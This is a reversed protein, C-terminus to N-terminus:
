GETEAVAHEDAILLWDPPVDGAAWGGSSEALVAAAALAVVLMCALQPIIDSLATVLVGASGEQTLRTGLGSSIGIVLLLVSAVWPESLVRALLSSARFAEAAMFAGVVIPLLLGLYGGIWLGLGAVAALGLGPVASIRLAPRRRAAPLVVPVRLEPAAPRAASSSKAATRRRRWPVFAVVLVAALGLLGGLLAARYSADPQYTLTVEGRSGAPLLWAQEWGDLEVPQLAKTGLRAAWGANFNQNVILYSQRSASVQVVRKAATWSIDKAAVAADATSAPAPQQDIAIAQVSFSDLEPETVNNGGAAVAIPACAAFSLPRGDLIDAVTGSAETAIKRGNFEITPGHGCSLRVPASAVPALPRVGPIAVDTIQVPLEASSFTLTLTTTQMPAFAVTDSGGVGEGDLTATRVQGQSGTIRMTLVGSAAAPRLVTISSIIKKKRWTVTLSPHRDAPSSIWTTQPNGDFASWAQDQPDSTYTSSATVTAHKGSGFAYQEIVAPDTLVATGSLRAQEARQVTFSHDFGYQEETSSELGPSCVWRQPTLMCGTPQPEAKALVVATPDAGDALRVDPAQIIRSAHVGPIAIEAIGVQRGLEDAPPNHVATVTIEIWTSPGSPLRLSQYSGTVRVPDVIQGAATTIKVQTVPPGISLNDAFAVAISGPNVARDLNVRIWQGVPGGYSGSEWMTNLNGDIAAFPLRGTASQAPIATIDSDASSATIGAIGAYRAVTVDPLWDPLMFDATAEFTSLPQGATLTPSYDDRIEGFNRVRRRLSDTVITDDSPLKASASNLLVPRGQLLDLQALTLVAEPAGYVRLTAATPQVTVAPEADTVQYIQVPPYSSEFDGAATASAPNVAPATGFQAVKVIGPSEALAQHVRAPWAERLDASLLDNRVLVYKVGMQALVQTLGASGAGASIQQDITELLRSNGVSGVTGLQSSAWDGVFLPELIDDLPSGWTYQGFRAGPEELVAQNGAHRNLWAAASVWYAPVGTFSGPQSLGSLYVPLALLGVAGVATIGVVRRPVGLRVRALLSALGLVIPLRLLPDFKQLNRIPALPGNILDALPGALPNGFASVHGTSIIFVGALLMWLLPRRHPMRRSVLGTLGLGAILGTLITPLLETAIRYGNPWWAHGDVVLYFLWDETGRLTNSLSTSATTVAASETYPLISVGYKGLLLLPYLWWLTALLVAPVWWAAIRWRPVPGRATLLYLAAAALVAATSDANVGSCMAVAVASQAALRAREGPSAKRGRQLAQVLPLLIWPLMAIPLFEASRSGLLTLANPALAYSLGAILRTASTGIDLQRGLRVVGLFAALLIFTIWLRQIIWAPVAALKGLLFFPGIPFFYGVAQDQLEGFQAPDWLHMARQLFGAPNIALDIKTDALIRGPHSCFALLALLLCCVILWRQRAIAGPLARCASDLQRLGPTHARFRPQEPAEIM